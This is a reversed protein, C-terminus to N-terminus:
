GWFMYTPDRDLEDLLALVDPTPAVLGYKHWRQTRDSWYLTWNGLRATYRLTRHRPADV